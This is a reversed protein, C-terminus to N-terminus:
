AFSYGRKFELAFEGAATRLFGDGIENATASIPKWSLKLPM